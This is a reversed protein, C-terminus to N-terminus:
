GAAQDGQRRAKAAIRSERHPREWDGAMISGYPVVEDVVEALGFREIQRRVAKADKYASPLESLDPIGAYFRADIGKTEEALIDAEARHANRRMHERRGVNRGAGHPCFGIGNAADRGRTILVPEAMNLPILTLGSSDAAFDAWAPTAGKAHYYRGDSRQFVFNHENWFRDEPTVQLADAVLDHIAWHNAKTWARITQLAEWYYRGEHTEAPIWANHEPTEPSLTQRWREAVTMGRKYVMAGPKRSGHHTVLAVAGSSKLRGVFFFHNGDGQTGFHEAAPQQLGSLFPNGDFRAIVDDPPALRRDPARGGPGFHSLVMGLDLVRKPDVDGLISIAVSCCIDASHMGPHIANETAVIGGVPITGLAAGAPCADPMIAGAVATPLRMLAAMHREVAAINDTEHPHEAEINLHYAVEGAPKLPVTAPPAMGAVAARIAAEDAGEAALRNAVPLADKFWIGPAFGWEILQHGTISM